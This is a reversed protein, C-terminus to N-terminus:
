KQLTEITHNVSQIAHEVVETKTQFPMPKYHKEILQEAKEELEKM